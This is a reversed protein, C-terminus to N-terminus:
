KVIRYTEPSLVAYERGDIMRLEHRQGVLRKDDSPLAVLSRAGDMFYLAGDCSKEWLVEDANEKKRVKRPAENHPAAYEIKQPFDKMESRSFSKRLYLRDGKPVLVGLYGVKGEGFVSLRIIGDLMKCDASFHTKAGESFVSIQGVTENKIIIPYNEM